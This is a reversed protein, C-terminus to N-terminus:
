VCWGCCGFSLCDLENCIQDYEEQTIKYKDLVDSTSEKPIFKMNGCAYEEAIEPEIDKHTGFDEEDAEVGNIVFTRLYCYCEGVAILLDSGANLTIQKM